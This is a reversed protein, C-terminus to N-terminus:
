KDKGIRIGILIGISLTFAMFLLVTDLEFVIHM